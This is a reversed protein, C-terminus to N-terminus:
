SSKHWRPSLSQMIARKLVPASLSMGGAASREFRYESPSLACNFWLDLTQTALIARVL